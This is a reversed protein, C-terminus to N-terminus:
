WQPRSTVRRYRDSSLHDSAEKLSDEDAEHILDHSWTDVKRFGDPTNENPCFVVVIGPDDTLAVVTRPLAGQQYRQLIVDGVKFKGSM